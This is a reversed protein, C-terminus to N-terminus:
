RCCTAANRSLSSLDPSKPSEIKVVEAGLDALVQTCLPGPMRSSLDLVRIGDLPLTM